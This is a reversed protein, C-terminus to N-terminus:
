ESRPDLADRLGDGVLNFAMVSVFIFVGPWLIWPHFRIQAIAMAESLLNGWSAQPDQIGLGLFSLTAEGLIYGPVALTAAVILYSFTNPIIHRIVIALHSVGLARAALCYDRTRIALAMGRIIRALSAWGIFSLIVVILLYAHFGSLNAPFAARLTLMLYFGPIMMIMEALRMLLNDVWGGFYGSIGGVVSGLSFSILIGLLGVSLSIRAGFLIRSLLDRGRSDAGLIYLRAPKDVGVLHRDFPILGLFKYSDGRVWFRLPFARTRDERWVRQYLENLRSEHAYIFPLPKVGGEADVWHLRTPPHYSHARVESDMGYPALVDAFLAGGYLLFLVVLALM